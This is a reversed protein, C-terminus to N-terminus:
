RFSKQEKLIISLSSNMYYNLTIYPNYGTNSNYIRNYSTINKKCHKKNEKSLNLRVYCSVEKKM